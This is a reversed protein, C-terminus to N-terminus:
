HPSARRGFTFGSLRACVAADWQVAGESSSRQGIAWQLEPVRFHRCSGRTRSVLTGCKGCPSGVHRVRRPDLVAGVRGIGHRCDVGFSAKRRVGLGPCYVSQQGSTRTPPDKQSGENGFVAAGTKGVKLSAEWVKVSGRRIGGSGPSGLGPSRPLGSPANAELSPALAQGPCAPVLTM